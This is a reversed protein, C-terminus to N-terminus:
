NEESRSAYREIIIVLLVLGLGSAATFLEQQRLVLLAILLFSLLFAQIRTLRLLLFLNCSGIALALYFAAFGVVDLADPDFRYGIWATAAFGAISLFLRLLTKM